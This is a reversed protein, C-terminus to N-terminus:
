ELFKSIDIIPRIEVCGEGGKCATPIKKAWELAVDLIQCELIYYGALQEKTEAFPGDTLLAQGDQLRVTTATSTPHLPEAGRLVGKKAAEQMAVRHGDMVAQKAEKSAAGDLDERSYILLMYRM